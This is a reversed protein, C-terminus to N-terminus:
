CAKACEPLLASHNHVKSANEGQDSRLLMTLAFLHCCCGLKSGSRLCLVVSMTSWALQLGSVVLTGLFSAPLRQQDLRM